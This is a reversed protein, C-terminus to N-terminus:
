DRCDVCITHPPAVIGRHCVSCTPLKPPPGPRPATPTTPTEPLAALIESPPRPPPLGRRKPRPGRPVGKVTRPPTRPATLVRRIEQPIQRATYKDQDVLWIGKGLYTGKLARLEGITREFLLADVRHRITLEIMM